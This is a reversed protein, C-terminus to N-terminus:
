GCPGRHAGSRHDGEPDRQCVAPRLRGGAAADRSPPSSGGRDRSGVSRYRQGARYRDGGSRSEPHDAGRRCRGADWRRYDGDGDAETSEATVGPEVVLSAAARLYLVIRLRTPDGLAKFTAAFAEAEEALRPLAQRAEQDSDKRKKTVTKAM